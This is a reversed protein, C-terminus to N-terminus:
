RQLAPKNRSFPVTLCRAFWMSLLTLSIRICKAGQAWRSQGRQASSKSLKDHSGKVLVMINQITSILFDQIEVRWLRRWRSRKYGYRTSRAFSCESIHKRDRIDRAANRSQAEQLARDLENQRVHHKLTRGYKSRTCQDRLECHACTQASARYEFHNRYKYLKRRQLIEGAPCTFTDTDPHYTFAEKPFIGKQRGSGRHTQEFSPIHAKIGQDHCILYNDITGYKSDAV